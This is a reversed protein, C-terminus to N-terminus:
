SLAQCRSTPPFAPRLGRWEKVDARTDAYMLASKHVLIGADYLALLSTWAPFSLCALLHRPHRVSEQASSRGDSHHQADRCKQDAGPGCVKVRDRWDREFSEAFPPTIPTPVLLFVFYKKADSEPECSGRPANCM